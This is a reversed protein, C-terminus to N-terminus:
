KELDKWFKIEEFEIINFSNILKGRAKWTAHIGKAIEKFESPTFEDTKANNCWYCSMCCNDVTYEKNPEMRDIELTFGRGSKSFIQLNGRLRQIENIHVGCYSCSKESYMEKWAELNKTTTMESIYTEQLDKISKYHDKTSHEQIYKECVKANFDKVGEMDQGQYYMSAFRKIIQDTIVFTNFDKVRGGLYKAFIFLRYKSRFSDEMKTYFKSYYEKYCSDLEELKDKSIELEDIFFSQITGKKLRIYQEENFIFFDKIDKKSTKKMIKHKLYQLETTKM